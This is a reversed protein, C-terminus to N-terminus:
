DLIKIIKKFDKTPFNNKEFLLFDSETKSKWSTLATVNQNKYKEHITKAESLRDTFLYIHALELQLYIESADLVIGEKCIKEAKDFQKSLLYYKSLHYCDIATARKKAFFEKQLIAIAEETNRKLYANNAEERIQNYYIDIEGTKVLIQETIDEIFQNKEVTMLDNFEKRTYKQTIKDIFQASFSDKKFLFPVVKQSKCLTLLDSKSNANWGRSLKFDVWPVIELVITQNMVWNDSEIAFYVTNSNSNFCNAQMTIVKAEKNIPKEQVFCAKDTKKTKIYNEADINSAFVAYKSKDEGSITSLLFVGGAAGQSIGTPDPISKLLSTLSSSIQQNKDLITIRYVFETTGEPFIESSIIKVEGAKISFTQNTNRVNDWYGQKSQSYNFFYTVLFLFTILKKKIKM